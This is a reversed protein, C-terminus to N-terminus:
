KPKLGARILMIAFQTPTRGDVAEAALKGERNFVYTRPIGAVHFTDAVKHGSDLLVTFHPDNRFFSGVKFSDEDTLALVVLGEPGYRNALADLAPLEMRCPPCWTAWFNVVVIKGRLQSLTWKKNHLDKLTFDAAEVQKDQDVLTQMSKQYQPEGALGAPATMGEYRVLQALEIYVGSPADNKGPPVPTEKVALALTDTAAQLNARGPDGETSLHAVAVALGLKDKSAPLAAIQHALEGTRPGRQAEPLARLGSLGTKISNIDATQASAPLPALASTVLLSLLVLIRPM